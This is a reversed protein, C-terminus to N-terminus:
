NKEKRGLYIDLENKMNDPISQEVPLVKSNIMRSAFSNIFECTEYYNKSDLFDMVDKRSHIEAGGRPAIRAFSLSPVGKDAFPTSDSSYVGQRATINFGVEKGMYNIYNVLSEKSTCCAIDRGLVVGTMDVNICLKYNKLEESHAECYAKSGLLGMEESGCWIFKLTRKPKNEAFYALAELITTTGTGNDYAGTSFPVSDFHATFCVIDSSSGDGNISAVVNHSTNKYEDQLCVVHVTEPNDLLLKQADMMRICVGPIKGNTYHRDRISMKDLDSNDRDDYVSGSACIFAKPKKECLLKYTKVMMRSPIFVIYDELSEYAGIQEDNEIVLFKGEVGDAPTSGSMGVGTVEYSVGNAELSAAKITYGDVLFEELHAEVGYKHCESIIMNAVKLEQESGGLREFSIKSLFDFSNYNAM